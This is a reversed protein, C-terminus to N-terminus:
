DLFEQHFLERSPWHMGTLHGQWDTDLCIAWLGQDDQFRMPGNYEHGKLDKGFLPFHEADKGCYAELREGRLYNHTHGFVNVFGEIKEPIGRHWLFPEPNDLQKKGSFDYHDRVPAHTILLDNEQYWLPLTRMWEIHEPDIGSLREEIDSWELHGREQQVELLTPKDPNYSDLTRDGGNAIWFNPAYRDWGCMQSLLFDEHNGRVAGGLDKFFQVVHKAGRTRDIMDGVSFPVAKRPMKAVLAELTKIRGNCDGIINLDAGDIQM